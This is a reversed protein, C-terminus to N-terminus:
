ADGGDKEGGFSFLDVTVVAPFGRTNTVPPSANPERPLTVRRIRGASDLWVDGDFPEVDPGEPSFSLEIQLATTGRVQRGGVPALDTARGVLALAYFPNHTDPKAPDVGAASVQVESGVQRGKKVTLTGTGAKLDLEGALEQVDSTVVVQATGAAVTVEPAERLLEAPDGKPIGSDGGTCAGVLAVLVAAVAARVPRCRSTM